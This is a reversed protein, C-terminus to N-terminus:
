AHALNRSSSLSRLLTELKGSSKVHTPYVQGLCIVKSPNLVPTRLTVCDKSFVGDGVGRWFDTDPRCSALFREFDFPDLSELINSEVLDRVDACKVQRLPRGTEKAYMSFALDADIILDGIELGLM